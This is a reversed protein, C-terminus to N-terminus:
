NGVTKTSVVSVLRPVGNMWRSHNKRGRVAIHTQEQLSMDLEEAKQSTEVWPPQTRRLAGLVGM